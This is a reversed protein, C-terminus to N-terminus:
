VNGNVTEIELRNRGSGIEGSGYIYRRMSEDNSRSETRRLQQPVESMIEYNQPSNHTVALTVDVRM